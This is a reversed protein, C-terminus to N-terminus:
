YANMLKSGEYSDYFTNVHSFPPFSFHPVFVYPHWVLMRSYKYLAVKSSEGACKNRQLTQKNTM